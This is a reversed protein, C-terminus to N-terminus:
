CGLKRQRKRMTLLEQQVAGLESGKVAKERLEAEPVQDDLALCETQASASMKQRRGNVQLAKADMGTLPKLGEAYAERTTERQVDSGIRRKGSAQDMGRTPEVDIRKAGLCPEDSYVVKKDVECKYVTRSTPPLKQTQALVASVALTLALGFILRHRM